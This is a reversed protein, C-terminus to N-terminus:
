APGSFVNEQSSLQSGSYFIIFINLKTGSLFILLKKKTRKSSVWQKLPIIEIGEFIIKGINFDQGGHIIEKENGQLM